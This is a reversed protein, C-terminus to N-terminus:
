LLLRCVFDFRSQLESTHEESREVVTQERRGGLRKWRSLLGIGTAPTRLTQPGPSVGRHGRGHARKSLCSLRRGRAPSTGTSPTLYSSRRTPIVLQDYHHTHVSS